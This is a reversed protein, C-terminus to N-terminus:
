RPINGRVSPVVGSSPCPHRGFHAPSSTFGIAISLADCPTNTVVSGVLDIVGRRRRSGIRALTSFRPAGRARQRRRVSARGHLGNGNDCNTGVLTDGGRLSDASMEWRDNGDYSPAGADGNPDLGVSLYVGVEVRPDNPTGDYNSGVPLKRPLPARKSTAAILRRARVAGRLFPGAAAAGNGTRAGSGVASITTGGGAGEADTEPAPAM